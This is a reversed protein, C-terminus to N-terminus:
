TPLRLWTGETNKKEPDKKMDEERKSESEYIEKKSLDNGCFGIKKRM